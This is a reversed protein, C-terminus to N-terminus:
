SDFRQWGRSIMTHLQYQLRLTNYANLVFILAAEQFLCFVNNQVFCWCKQIFLNTRQPQISFILYQLYNQMKELTLKYWIRRKNRIFDSYRTHNELVVKTLTLFNQFIRIVEVFSCGEPNKNFKSGGRGFFCVPKFFFNTSNWILCLTTPCWLLRGAKIQNSSQLEITTTSKFNM